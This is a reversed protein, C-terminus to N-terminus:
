HSGLRPMLSFEVGCHRISYKSVRVRYDLGAGAGLIMQGGM